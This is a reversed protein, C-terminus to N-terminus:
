LTKTDGALETRRRKKGIEADFYSVMRYGQGTKYFFVPKLGDDIEVVDHLSVEVSLPEAGSEYRCQEWFQRPTLDTHSEQKLAYRRGKPPLERGLSNSLVAHM